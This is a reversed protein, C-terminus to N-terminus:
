AARLHLTPPRAGSDAARKLWVVLNTPTLLGYDDGRVLQDSYDRTVYYVLRADLARHAQNQMEVAARSGDDLRARVDLVISKNRVLEGPINADIVSLEPVPRALVGELMDLLLAKERTLMLKFVLDLRPPLRKHSVVRWM